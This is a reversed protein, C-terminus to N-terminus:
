ERPALRTADDIDCARSRGSQVHAEGEAAESSADEDDGVGLEDDGVALVYCIYGYERRIKYLM